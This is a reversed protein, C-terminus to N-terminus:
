NGRYLERYSCVNCFIDCVDSGFVGRNQLCIMPDVRIMQVGGAELTAM